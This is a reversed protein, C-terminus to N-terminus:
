IVGWEEITVVLGAKSEGLVGLEMLSCLVDTNM